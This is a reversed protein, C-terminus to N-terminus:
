KNNYGFTTIITELYSKSSNVIPSEPLADTMTALPKPAVTSVPKPTFHEKYMTDVIQKEAFYIDCEKDEYIGSNYCNVHVVRNKYEDYDLRRDDMKKQIIKTLDEAPVNDPSTELINRVDVKNLHNDTPLFYKTARNLNAQFYRNNIIKNINYVRCEKEEGYYDVKKCVVCLSCNEPDPANRTLREKILEACKDDSLINQKEVGIDKIFSSDVSTYAACL